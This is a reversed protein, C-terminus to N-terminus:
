SKVPVVAQSAAAEARQRQREAESQWKVADTAGARARKRHKGQNIWTAMSGIIMGLIVAGFLFIFFPATASLVPDSPEFPNLALTVSQRNAVCLVILVIAIPVLVVINVTKKFM